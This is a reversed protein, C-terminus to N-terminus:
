GGSLKAIIKDVLGKAVVRNNACEYILGFIEKYIGKKHKPLKSLPDETMDNNLVREAKAQFKICEKKLGSSEDDFLEISESLKNMVALSSGIEKRITSELNKPIASQELLELKEEVNRKEQGFVKERNRIVSKDRCLKTIKRAQINLHGKLTSYSQNQTFNDRRGNPQIKKDLIYIEGVSWSNFRREAFIDALINGDGVQINGARVRLGKVGTDSPIAGLYGHDLRWGVASESGNNGPIEFFVPAKYKSVLSESITLTNVHPKYIPDSSNNIFINFVKGASFKNLYSEIKEKYTFEPSFPVPAVQALYNNIEIENLLIDNKLRSIKRMEVEFFHSPYGESSVKKFHVVSNVVDKLDGKFSDDRLLEMIKRCDWSIESVEGEGPAMTRFVLEQCYGLGALRGVGRFGRADSGRKKSAGFATIRRKFINKKIGNGNDLIRVSRNAQSISIDVRPHINKKYLNLDEAEDISDVSNQIYERYVNLPNVYMAHSLLELIDKGIIINGRDINKSTDKTKKEMKSGM